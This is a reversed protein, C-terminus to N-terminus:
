KKKVGQPTENSKYGKDSSWHLFLRKAFHGKRAVNDKRALKLEPETIKELKKLADVTELLDGLEDLLEARSRVRALASGEEAVKKLLEQQFEQDNKLVWTECQEGKDTIKKPIKDRILKNYYVRKM